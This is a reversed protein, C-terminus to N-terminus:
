GRVGVTAYPGRGQPCGSVVERRVLGKATGIVGDHGVAAALDVPKHHFDNRFAVLVGTIWIGDRRRTAEEAAARAAQGAEGESDAGVAPYYWRETGNSAYAIAVWGPCRDDSLITTWTGGKLDAKQRARYAGREENAAFVVETADRRGLVYVGEGAVPEPEAPAAPPAHPAPGAAPPPPEAAPAPAPAAAPKRILKGALLANAGSDGGRLWAVDAFRRIGGCTGCSDALEARSLQIERESARMVCSPRVGASALGKAKLYTAFQEGYAARESVPGTDHMDSVFVTGRAADVAYCYFHHVEAAAAPAAALAAALAGPLLFAPRRGTRPM